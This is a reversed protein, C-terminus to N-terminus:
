RIKTQIYQKLCLYHVFRNKCKCINILPNDINNSSSELCIWYQEGEKESDKKELSELKVRYKDKKVNFKFIEDAKKNIESINYNNDRVEYNDDIKNIRNCIKCIVLYIKSKINIFFGMM